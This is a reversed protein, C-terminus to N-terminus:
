GPFFLRHARIFVERGRGKGGRTKEGPPACYLVRQGALLLQPVDPKWIYLINDSTPTPTMPSPNSVETPILTTDKSRYNAMHHSRAMHTGKTCSHM